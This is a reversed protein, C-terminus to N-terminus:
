NVNEIELIHQLRLNKKRSITKLLQDRKKKADMSNDLSISDLQHLIKSKDGNLDNLGSNWDTEDNADDYQKLKSEYVKNLKEIESDYQKM